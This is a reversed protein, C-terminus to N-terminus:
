PPWHCSGFDPRRASVILGPVPLESPRDGIAAGVVDIGGDIGGLRREGFPAVHRREFARAHELADGRDQALV